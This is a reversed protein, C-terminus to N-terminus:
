QLQEFFYPSDFFFLYFVVPVCGGAMESQSAWGFRHYIMTTTTTTTTRVMRRMTKEGSPISSGGDDAVAAAAIGEDRCGNV